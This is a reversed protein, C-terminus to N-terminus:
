DCKMKDLMNYIRDKVGQTVTVMIGGEDPLGYIVVSSVPALVIAPLAALDEEGYVRIQM